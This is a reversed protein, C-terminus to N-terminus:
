GWSKPAASKLPSTKHYLQVAGVRPSTRLQVRGPAALHVLCGPDTRSIHGCGLNARRADFTLGTHGPMVM